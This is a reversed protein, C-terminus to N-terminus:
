GGSKDWVRSIRDVADMAQKFREEDEHYLSGVELPMRRAAEAVQDRAGQLQHFLRVFGDKQAHNALANLKQLASSLREDCTRLAQELRARDQLHVRQPYSPNRYSDVPRAATAPTTGTEGGVSSYSVRSAGQVSSVSSLLRAVSRNVGSWNM